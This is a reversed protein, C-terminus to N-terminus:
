TQTSPTHLRFHRVFKRCGLDLQGAYATGWKWEKRLVGIKLDTAAAKQPNLVALANLAFSKAQTRLADLHQDANSSRVVKAMVFTVLEALTRVGGEIAGILACVRAKWTKCYTSLAQDRGYHFIWREFPVEQRLIRDNPDATQAQHSSQTATTERLFLHSLTQGVRNVRNFFAKTKQLTDQEPSPTDHSPSGFPDIFSKQKRFEEPPRHSGSNLDPPFQVHKDAQDGLLSRRIAAVTIM